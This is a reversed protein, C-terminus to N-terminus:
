AGQWGSMAIIDDFVKPSYSFGFSIAIGMDASAMGRRKEFWMMVMNKSSMTLRGQGFFRVFFFGITLLIYTLIEINIINFIDIIFDIFNTLYSMYILALGLFIEALASTIRAGFKDFFKGAYTLLFSSLLTGILYALSLKERSISLDTILFDTFVLIGITQGPTSLLIGITGSLIIVYGYFFPFKNIINKNRM